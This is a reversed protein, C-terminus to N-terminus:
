ENSMLKKKRNKFLLISEYADLKKQNTVDVKLVKLHQLDFDEEVM